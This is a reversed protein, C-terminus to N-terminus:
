LEAAKESQKNQEFRVGIVGVIIALVSSFLLGTQHPWSQTLIAAVFATAACIYQPWRQLLPVVIGVFAVIMAVDLGWKTIDPVTKGLTIGVWSFVQWNTYMLVASGLYYAVFKLLSQNESSQQSLRGAVVAYTEDTIWFAMPARLWQPLGAMHPMLSASYLMHRLNVIFVTLIIIPIATSGYLLVAIFQSSGAFVFLSMALTAWVSLGATQALAGYVVAFPIAALILPLTDRAGLMFLPLGKNLKRRISENM